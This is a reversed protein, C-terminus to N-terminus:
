NEAALRLVREVDAKEAHGEHVKEGGVYFTPVYYYDYREALAPERGEDIVRVPIERWDPHEALLERWFRRALACHPCGGLEFVLIEKVVNEETEGTEIGIM